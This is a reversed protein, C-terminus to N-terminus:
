SNMTPNDNPGGGAGQTLEEFSGLDILAPAEYVGQASTEAQKM